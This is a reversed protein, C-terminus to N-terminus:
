LQHHTCDVSLLHFVLAEMEFRVIRKFEDLYFTWRGDAKFRYPRELLAFSQVNKAISQYINQASGVAQIDEDRKDESYIKTGEMVYNCQIRSGKGDDSSYIFANDFHCVLDPLMFASYGMFKATDAIGYRKFHKPCRPGPYIFNHEFPRACFVDFFGYLLPFDCSNMVNTFMNAFSLRIDSKIVRPGHYTAEFEFLSGNDSFVM